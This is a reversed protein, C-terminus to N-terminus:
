PKIERMEKPLQYLAVAQQLADPNVTILSNLSPGQKDYAEIRNLYLQVLQESTLANADFAQNIEAVTAEELEFTAAKAEPPAFTLVVASTAIAVSTQKFDSLM